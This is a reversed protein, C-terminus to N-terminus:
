GVTPRARGQALRLAPDGERALYRNWAGVLGALGLAGLLAMGAFSLTLVWTARRHNAPVVQDRGALVRLRVPQGPREQLEKLFSMPLEVERVVEATGGPETYRFRASGRTIESRERVVLDEVTAAVVAGHEAVERQELGARLLAAAIVLMLLPLAWLLRAVTRNSFFDM